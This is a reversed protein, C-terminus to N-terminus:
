YGCYFSLGTGGKCTQGSECLASKCSVPNDFCTSAACLGTSDYSKSCCGSWCSTHSGTADCGACYYYAEGSGNNSMKLTCQQTGQCTFACGGCHENTNVTVAQQNCCRALPNGTDWQTGNTKGVCVGTAGDPPLGSDPVPTTTTATSTATSTPSTAADSEETEEPDSFDAIFTCATLAAYGLPVVVGLLVTGRLRRPVGVRKM